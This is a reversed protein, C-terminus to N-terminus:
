RAENARVGPPVLSDYLRMLATFRVTPSHNQQVARRAGTALRRALDRDCLLEALAGSMADADHPRVLLATEGHNVIEPVGGVLTAAIPLEAAMAELLVNPSGETHSPLALVDAVGYFRNVDSVEGAFLIKDAVGFRRALDAIRGREPGDGVFVAKLGIAPHSKLLLALAKVLDAHGKELSLRGVALVVKEFDSIGLERRFALAGADRIVATREVDISNHIVEIREPRVGGRRLQEAFSRSVTVVRDAARLSWRDLRNYARM